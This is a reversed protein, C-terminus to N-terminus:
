QKKQLICRFEDKSVFLRPRLSCSKGLTRHSTTHCLHGKFTSVYTWPAMSDMNPRMLHLYIGPARSQVSLTKGLPPGKRPGYKKIRLFIMLGFYLTSHLSSCTSLQTTEFFGQASCSQLSAPQPSLLKRLLM